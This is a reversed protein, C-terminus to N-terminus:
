GQERRPGEKTGPQGAFTFIGGSKKVSEIRLEQEFIRQMFVMLAWDAKREQEQIQEHHTM